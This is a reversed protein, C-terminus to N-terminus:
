LRMVSVGGRGRERELRNKEVVVECTKEERRRWRERRENRRQTRLIVGGIELLGLPGGAGRGSGLSIM